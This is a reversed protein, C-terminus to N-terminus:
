RTQTQAGLKRLKKQTLEEQNFNAFYHLNFSLIHIQWLHSDLDERITKLSLNSKRFNSEFSNMKDLSEADLRRAVFTQSGPHRLVTQDM